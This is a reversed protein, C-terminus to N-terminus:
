HLKAEGFRIKLLELNKLEEEQEYNPGLLREELMTKYVKLFAEPSGYINVLQSIIDSQKSKASIYTFEANNSLPLPEWSEAAAEDEDSSIYGDEDEAGGGLPVGQPLSTYQHQGLQEYLENDEQKLIM